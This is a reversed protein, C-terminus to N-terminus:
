NFATNIASNHFKDATAKILELYLESNVKSNVPIINNEKKFKRIIAKTRKGIIGDVTLQQDYVYALLRQIEKAKGLKTGKNFDTIMKQSMPGILESSDYVAVWYPLDYYSGIIEVMSLEVLLRLASHIGQKYSATATINMGSGFVAFGFGEDKTMKQIQMKNSVQLGTVYLNRRVDLMTFDVSISSREYDSGRNAGADADVSGFQGYASVDAGKSATISGADFETIAGHLIYLNQNAYRRLASDSFPIMVIKDGSMRNISSEVMMTIVSPIKGAAATQNEIPEIAIYIKDKNYMSLLNKMSELSDSYQTVNKYPTEDKSTKKVLKAWDLGLIKTGGPTLCGQLPLLFLFLFSIVAVSNKKNSM